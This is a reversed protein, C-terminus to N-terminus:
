GTAPTRRRLRALCTLVGLLSAASGLAAAGLVWRREGHELERALWQPMWHNQGPEAPCPIGLARLTQQQRASAVLSAHLRRRFDPDPRVPTLLESLSRALALYPALTM